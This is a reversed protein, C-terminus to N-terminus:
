EDDVVESFKNLDSQDMGAIQKYFEEKTTFLARKKLPRDNTVTGYRSGYRDYRGSMYRSSYETDYKVFDTTEKMLQRIMREAESSPLHDCRAVYNYLSGNNQAVEQLISVAVPCSKLSNFATELDSETVKEKMKLMTLINMQENSPATMPRNEISDKMSQQIGNFRGSYERQMASLAAEYEDNIKKSETKYGESGYYKRIERLKSERAESLAERRDQYEKAINFYIDTNKLM